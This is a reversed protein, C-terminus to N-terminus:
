QFNLMQFSEIYNKSMAKERLVRWNNQYYFLAEETNNNLIQVFDLTSNKDSQQAQCIFYIGFFLTTLIVKAPKM